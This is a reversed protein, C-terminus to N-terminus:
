LSYEARYETREDYFSQIYENYRNLEDEKGPTLTYVVDKYFKRMEPKKM